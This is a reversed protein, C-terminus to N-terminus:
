SFRRRRVWFAVLISRVVRFLVPARQKVMSKERKSTCKLQETQTRLRSPMEPRTLEPTRLFGLLLDMEPFGLPARLRSVSLFHATRFALQCQTSAFPSDFGRETTNNLVIYDLLLEFFERLIRAQTHM